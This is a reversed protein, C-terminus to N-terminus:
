GDPQHEQSIRCATRREHHGTHQSIQCNTRSEVIKREGFFLFSQKLDAYYDAESFWTKDAKKYNFAIETKGAEGASLSLVRVGSATWQPSGSTRPGSSSRSSRGGTTPTRTRTHRKRCRHRCCSGSCSSACSLLLSWLAVHSTNGSAAHGTQITSHSAQCERQLFCGRRKPSWSLHLISSPGQYPIM